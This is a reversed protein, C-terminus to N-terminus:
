SGRRLTSGDSLTALDFQWGTSTPVFEGQLQVDGSARHLTLSLRNVSVWGSVDNSTGDSWLETGIVHVTSDDDTSDDALALQIVHASPASLTWNDAMHPQSSTDARTLVVTSGGTRTLEVVNKSTFKGTYSASATSFRFGNADFSGETLDETSISLFSAASSHEIRSSTSFNGAPGTSSSDDKLLFMRVLGGGSDVGEFAFNYNSEGGGPYGPSPVPAGGYQPTDGGGCSALACAAMLLAAWKLMLKLM